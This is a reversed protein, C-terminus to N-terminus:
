DDAETASERLQALRGPEDDEEGDGTVDEKVGSLLSDVDYRKEGVLAGVLAGSAAGTSATSRSILGGLFAGVAAGIAAYQARKLARLIRDKMDIEESVM